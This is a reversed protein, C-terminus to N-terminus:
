KWLQEKDQIFIKMFNGISIIAEWTISNKFRIQTRLQVSFVTPVSVHAQLTLKKEAIFALKKKVSSFNCTIMFNKQCTFRSTISFFSWLTRAFSSKFTKREFQQMVCPWLRLPYTSPLYENLSTWDFVMRIPTTSSDKIVACHPLYHVNPPVFKENVM